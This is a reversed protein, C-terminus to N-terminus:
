RHTEERRAHRSVVLDDVERELERDAALAHEAHQREDLRELTTVRQAARSWDVHQEAARQRAAERREDLSVVTTAARDRRGRTTSFDDISQTGGPQPLVRYAAIKTDLAQQAAAVAMNAMALDARARAEQIRRVRLVAELRFQYRRM